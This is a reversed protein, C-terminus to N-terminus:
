RMKRSMARDLDRKTQRDAIAARKDHSAKGKGLGILVKAFGDKFYLKLPVITMGKQDVQRALREIERKHALLKRTRGRAHQRPGGPSYEEITVQHLYLALPSLQVRVYGEAISVHGDRVAKVETGQLVIGCELTDSIAYDHRARRNEVNVEKPKDKRKAM